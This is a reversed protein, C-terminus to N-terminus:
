VIFSVVNSWKFLTLFQNDTSKQGTAALVSERPGGEAGREVPSFPSHHILQEASNSLGFVM